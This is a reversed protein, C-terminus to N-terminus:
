GEKQINISYYGNKSIIILKLKDTIICDGEDNVGISLSLENSYTLGVLGNEMKSLCLIKVPRTTNKVDELSEDFGLETVAILNITNKINLSDDLGYLKFFPTNNDLIINKHQMISKFNDSVTVGEDFYIGKNDSNVQALGNDDVYTYSKYQPDGWYGSITHNYLNLEIHGDNVSATFAANLTSNYNIRIPYVSGSTTMEYNTIGYCYLYYTNGNELGGIYASLATTDGKTLIKDTSKLLVTLDADQYVEVKYADLINDVYGKNDYSLNCGFSATNVENISSTNLDKITLTPTKFCYFQIPSSVDSLIYNTMSGTVSYKVQLTASYKDGNVLASTLESPTYESASLYGNTEITIDSVTRTLNTIKLISGVITAGNWTYLFSYPKEADIAIVRQLIPKAM